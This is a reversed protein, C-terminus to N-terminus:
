KSGWSIAVTDCLINHGVGLEAGFGAPLEPICGVVILIDIYYQILYICGVSNHAIYITLM